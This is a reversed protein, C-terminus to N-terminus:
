QQVVTYFLTTDQKELYKKVKPIIKETLIVSMIVMLWQVQTTLIHAKVMVPLLYFRKVKRKLLKLLQNLNAKLRILLRKKQTFHVFLGCLFDYGHTRKTTVEPPNWYAGGLWNQELVTISNLTASLVIAVHGYGQGYNRNFIVLDGPQAQFSLTNEYITAEGKFNNWTPIDAAGVGKLTHNFLYLWWQNALDFCQFGYSRDPNYANGEMSKLYKIADKYTRKSAM